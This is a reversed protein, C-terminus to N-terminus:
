QASEQVQRQHRDSRFGEFHNTSKDANHWMNWYDPGFLATERGESICRRPQNLFLHRAPLQLKGVSPQLNGDSSIVSAWFKLKARINERFHPTKLGFKKKCKQVLIKRSSRFKGVVRFNPPGTLQGGVVVGRIVGRARGRENQGDTERQGNRGNRRQRKSNACICRRGYFHAVLSKDMDKSFTSWKKLIRESGCKVPLQSVFTM